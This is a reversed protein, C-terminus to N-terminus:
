VCRGGRLGGRYAGGECLVGAGGGGAGKELDDRVRRGGARLRSGGSYDPALDYVHYAYEARIEGAPFGGGYVADDSVDAFVWQGGRGGAVYAVCDGRCRMKEEDFIVTRLATCYDVDKVFM